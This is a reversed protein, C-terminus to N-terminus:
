MQGTIRVELAETQDAAPNELEMELCIDVDTLEEEIPLMIFAVQTEEPNLGGHEGNGYVQIGLDYERGNISAKKVQVLTEASSINQVEMLLIGKPSLNINSQNILIRQNDDYDVFLVNKERQEGAIGISHSLYTNNYVDTIKFLVSITQVDLRDKIFRLGWNESTNWSYERSALVTWDEYPRLPSDEGENYYTETKEEVVYAIRDYDALDATLRPSYGDIGEDYLYAMEVNLQNTASDPKCILRASVAEEEGRYLVVPVSIRGDDRPVYLLPVDYLPNGDEDTVFLNTHVYEGTMSGYANIYAEQTAVLRWGDSDETKQLALLEAEVFEEQQKETLQLSIITRNDRHVDGISVNNVAGWTGDAGQLGILRNGFSAVFDAYGESPALDPYSNMNKYYLAKNYYPFYTTLGSADIDDLSTLSVVVCDRIAKELLDQQNKNRDTSLGEVMGGLDILDYDSDPSEENRGFSLLGRRVRSIAAFNEPGVTVSQMYEDLNEAVMDIQSLDVCSMTYNATTDRRACAAIYLDAIRKGVESPPEAASLDRLFAYDWGIDPEFEESAIMYEAYPAMITAVEASGMMCADFGIWSLKQDKAFPSNRFATAMEEMSLVDSSFMDNCVGGIAGGGHNWLILAYHDSPFNECSYRMFMALTEPSGMNYLTGDNFLRKIGGPGIQYIGTSRASILPNGWARAGGALVVINLQEGDFGSFAMELLDATASARLEELNSGCLYVMLTMHKSTPISELEVLRMASSQADSEEDAHTSIIDQINAKEALASYMLMATLVVSLLMLIGKKVNVVLEERMVMCDNYDLTRIWKTKTERMSRINRLEM